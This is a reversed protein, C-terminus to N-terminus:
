VAQPLEGVVTPRAANRRSHSAQVDTGSGGKEKRSVKKAEVKGEKEKAM